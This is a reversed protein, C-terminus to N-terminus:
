SGTERSRKRRQRWALSEQQGAELWLLPASELDWPEAKLSGEVGEAEGETAGLGLIRLGDPPSGAGGGRIAGPCFRGMPPLGPALVEPAGEGVCRGDVEV